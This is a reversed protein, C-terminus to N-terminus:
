LPRINLAATDDDQRVELIQDGRIQGAFAEVLRSLGWV